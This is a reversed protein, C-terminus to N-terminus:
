PQGLFRSVSASRGVGDRSGASSGCRSASGRVSRYASKVTATIESAQLGARGAAVALVDLAVPPPVDNEALRCAAWFLGRNREGVPRSAVWSALRSLDPEGRTERVRDLDTPRPDLLNRLADSDVRHAPGPNVSEVRYSARRGSILVHSPPVVVYGGDGRFDVGARAAQWSRQACGPVSPYVAHLGGSPTRVLVEWGDTLGASAVRNISAFGDVQGHVDVDVVVAGSAAGTPIGVNAEPSRRWWRDVQGVDATADRFGHKTIPRKGSPECPFVPVGAHAFARAAASLPLQGEAIEIM